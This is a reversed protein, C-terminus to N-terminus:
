KRRRRTRNDYEYGAGVGDWGIHAGIRILRKNKMADWKYKQFNLEKRTKARNITFWKYIKAFGIYYIYLIFVPTLVEVLLIIESAISFTSGFIFNQLFFDM